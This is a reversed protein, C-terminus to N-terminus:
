GPVAITIGTWAICKHTSYQLRVCILPCMIQILARKKNYRHFSNDLGRPIRDRVSWRPPVFFADCLANDAMRHPVADTYPCASQLHAFWLPRLSRQVHNWFWMTVLDYVTQVRYEHASTAPLLHTATSSGVVIKILERNKYEFWFLINECYFYFSLWM